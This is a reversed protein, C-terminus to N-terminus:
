TITVGSDVAFVQGTVRRSEDSALYVALQAIDDPEVLGLLHRQVLGKSPEHDTLNAKVRDTLTIGPAIANVRVKQGAHGAAMARTM